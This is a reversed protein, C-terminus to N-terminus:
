SPSSSSTTAEALKAMREAIEARMARLRARVAPLRWAIWVAWTEKAMKRWREFWRIAFTGTVPGTALLSSWLRWDIQQRWALWALLAYWTPFAVIAVLLGSSAKVDIHPGALFVCFRVLWYPVANLVTGIALFPAGLALLMTNKLAWGITPGAHYDADVHDDRVHLTRLVQDYRRLLHRLEDIADPQTEKLREYSDLLLKKRHLRTRLGPESEEDRTVREALDALRALEISDADLVMKSLREQLAKTLSEVAARPDAAYPERFADLTMTPGVSVLAKGRYLRTREYHIGVMQVRLGLKFGALAEAELAMKAAGFKFEALAPDDHSKGEPFLAVAGGAALAEKVAGYLASNDQKQGGADQARHAPITKMGRMFFSLVPIKFLTAKAIFRLQRPSSVILLTPDVMGNHHNALFLLPGDSPVHERGAFEIETYYLRLAARLIWWVFRYVLTV